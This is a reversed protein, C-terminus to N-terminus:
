REQAMAGDWWSAISLRRLAVSNSNFFPFKEGYQALVRQQEASSPYRAVFEAERKQAKAEDRVDQAVRLSEADARMREKAKATENKELEVQTERLVQEMAKALYAMPSHCAVGSGQMGHTSLRAFCQVIEAELYDRRLEWFVELESERKRAPKLEAFYTRLHENAIKGSLSNDKTIQVQQFNISEGEFRSLEQRMKVASRDRNSDAERKVQPSEFCPQESQPVLPKRERPGGGPEPIFVGRSSVSWTNGRKFDTRVLEVLKMLKLQGLARSVTAHSVGTGGCMFGISARLTGDSDQYGWAQASMWIFLRFADGSLRQLDPDAFASRALMFFGKAPARETQPAEKQAPETKTQKTQPREVPESMRPPALAVQGQRRLDFPTNIKLGEIASKLNSKSM